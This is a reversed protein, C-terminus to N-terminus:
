GEDQFGEEGGGVWKLSRAFGKLAKFARCFGLGYKKFFEKMGEV